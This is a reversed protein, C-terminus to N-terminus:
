KNRVAMPRSKNFMSVIAGKIYHFAVSGFVLIAVGTMFASLLAVGDNSIHSFM